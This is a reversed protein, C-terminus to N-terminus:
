NGNLLFNPLVCVNKKFSCCYSYKFSTPMSFFFINATKGVPDFILMELECMCYLIDFREATIHKSGTLMPNEFPKDWLETEQRQGSPVRARPVLNHRLMMSLTSQEHITILVLQCM